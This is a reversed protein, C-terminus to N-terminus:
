QRGASKKRWETFGAGGACTGARSGTASEAGRRRRGPETRADGARGAVRVRRLVCNGDCCRGKSEHVRETGHWGSEKRCSRAKRRQVVERGISYEGGSVVIDLKRDCIGESEM